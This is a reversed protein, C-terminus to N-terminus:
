IGGYNLIKRPTINELYFKEIISILKKIYELREEKKMKQINEQNFNSNLISNLNEYNIKSYLLPSYFLNEKNKGTQLLELSHVKFKLDINKHSFLNFIEESFSRDNKDYITIHPQYSHFHKKWWINKLSNSECKFYVTNQNTGYFTDVGTICIEQNKIESEWEKIKKKEEESIKNKYEYPGRVTIHAEHKQTPDAFLRVGDILCKLKENYIYIVLYYKM